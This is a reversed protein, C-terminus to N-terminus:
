VIVSLIHAIATGAQNLAASSLRPQETSSKFNETLLVGFKLCRTARHFSYALLLGAGRFEMVNM